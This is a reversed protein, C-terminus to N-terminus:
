SLANDISGFFTSANPLLVFANDSSFFDWYDGSHPFFTSSSLQYHPIMMRQFFILYTKLANATITKTDELKKFVFSYQRLFIVM